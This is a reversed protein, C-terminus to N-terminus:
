AASRVSNQPQLRSLLHERLQQPVEVRPAPLAVHVTELRALDQQRSNRVHRATDEFYVIRRDHPVMENVLALQRGKPVRGVCFVEQPVLQHADVFHLMRRIAAGSSRATLIFFPRRERTLQEAVPLLPGPDPLLGDEELVAQLLLHRLYPTDYLEPDIGRDQAGKELVKRESPLSHLKYVYDETPTCLVGDFDLVAVAMPGFHEDVWRLGKAVTSADILRM